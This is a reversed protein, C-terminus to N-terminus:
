ASVRYGAEEIAASIMEDAVSDSDIRVSAKGIAVEQVTIGEVRALEKRVAMICHQCSMGEITFEKINM